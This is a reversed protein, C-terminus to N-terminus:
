QTRRVWKTKKDSTGEHKVHARKQMSENRAHGQAKMHKADM